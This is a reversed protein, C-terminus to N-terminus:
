DHCYEEDLAGSRRHDKSGTVARLNRGTPLFGLKEVGETVLLAASRAGDLETKNLAAVRSLKAEM